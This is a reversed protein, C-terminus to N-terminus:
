KPFNAQFPTRGPQSPKQKVREQASKNQLPGKLQLPGTRNKEVYRWHDRQLHDDRNCTWCRKTEMEQARMVHAVKVQLGPDDPLADELYNPIYLGEDDELSLGAEPPDTGEQPPSKQNCGADDGSEEVTANQVSHPQVM